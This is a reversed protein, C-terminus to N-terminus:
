NLRRILNSKLFNKIDIIHVLELYSYFKKLRNLGWRLLFWLSVYSFYRKEEKVHYRSICVKTSVFFIKNQHQCAVVNQEAATRAPRVFMMWNCKDEDSLDLEEEFGDEYFVQWYYCLYNTGCVEYCTIYMDLKWFKRYLNVILTGYMHMNWVFAHKMWLM